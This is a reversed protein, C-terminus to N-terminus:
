ILNRIKRALSRMFGGPVPYHANLETETTPWDAASMLFVFDILTIWADPGGVANLVEGDYLMSRRDQNHSGITYFLFTGDGDGAGVADALCPAEGDRLRLLASTIEDDATATGTTQRRRIEFYRRLVPAWERRGLVSLANAGAFFQTKLHLNPKRGVVDDVIVQRPGEYTADMSEREALLARAVDPHVAPRGPVRGSQKTLVDLVERVDNVDKERQYIGIRLAGGARKIEPELLNTVRLLTVLNEHLLSMTPLADSPANAAAPAIPYVLVGRLAASVFMAAWFDSTWISDPAILLSGAAMLNYLAAKMVTAKKEGFGTENMATLVGTTWGAQRLSDCRAAYRAPYPRARFVTPIRAEPIGQTQYLKRVASKFLVLDAGRIVVSRDEWYRGLYHEGIGEGTSIAEGSAPDDEFVDRFAIKRHDRMLLDGAFSPDYPNTVSVYVRIRRRVEDRPMRALTPSAAIAAHLRAVGERARRALVTDVITVPTRESMHELFSIIGRSKNERYYHEDLFLYFQPLYAREGHDMEHIARTFAEVYGDITQSWAVRDAVKHRNLGRYDHVWLVHYVRTELLSRRFEYHFRDNLLYRVSNADTFRDGILDGLASQMEAQSDYQERRLGYNLPIWVLRPDDWRKRAAREAQDIGVVVRRFADLSAVRRPEDLHRARLVEDFAAGAQALLGGLEVPHKRQGFCRDYPVVVRRWIVDEASRALSPDDATIKFVRELGAHYASDEEWFTGGPTALQDQVESVVRQFKKRGRPTFIGSKGFNPTLLRDIARMALRVNEVALALSTDRLAASRPPSPASPFPTFSQYPRTARYEGWPFHFMFGAALTRRGPTYDIRLRDGAHLLGGRRIAGQVSMKFFVDKAQFDYELGGRFYPLKVYGTVAQDPESGRQGVAAEAALDLLGFQPATTRSLMDVFFRQSGRERQFDYGSLMGWEFWFKAPQGTSFPVASWTSDPAPQALAIGPILCIAALALRRVM